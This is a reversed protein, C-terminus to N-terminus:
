PHCLAYLLHRQGEDFLGGAHGGGPFVLWPRIRHLPQGASQVAFVPFRDCVRFAHRRHLRIPVRGRAM